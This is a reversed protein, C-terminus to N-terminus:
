SRSVVKCFCVALVIADFDYCSVHAQLFSFGYGEGEVSLAERLLSCARRIKSLVLTLCFCIM